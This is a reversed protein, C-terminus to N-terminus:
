SFRTCHGWCQLFNRRDHGKGTTDAAGFEGGTQLFRQWRARQGDDDVCTVIELM